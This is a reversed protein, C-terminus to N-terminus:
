KTELGSEGQRLHDAIQQIQQKYNKEIYKRTECMMSVLKKRDTEDLKVEQILPNLRFYPVDIMGCWAEAIDVPRGDTITAQDKVITYCKKLGRYAAYYSFPNLVHKPWRAEYSSAKKLAVKGTGLSVVVRISSPDTETQKLRLNQNHFETMLDLTPNNASLGGDMYVGCSKFYTPAAGTARAAEWVKQDNPSKPTFFDQDHQLAQPEQYTRFYHLKVPHRDALVGTVMARPTEGLDTMVTQEEFEEKLFADFNTSRDDISGTFFTNSHTFFLDRIETPRKGKCLALALIGGTSTGAIWDFCEQIPKEVQKEIAILMLCLNIGKIGGGDLSLLRLGRKRGTDSCTKISPGDPKNKGPDNKYWLNSCEDTETTVTSENLREDHCYDFENLIEKANVNSTSALPNKGKKNSMNVDADFALLIKLMAIDGDMAAYHLPTNGDEDGINADADLCLLEIACEARSKRQMIHLPTLGNVCTGNISVGEQFLKSIMERNVAWHMLTGNYKNDRLCLQDRWKKYIKEVSKNDGQKLAVFIPHINDNDTIYPNADANLLLAVCESKSKRCATCLATLGKKNKCDIIKDEGTFQDNKAVLPICEPDYLVAYHYVSNGESDVLDIRAGLELLKSVCDSNHGKLAIMLPSLKKRETQENININDNRLLSDLDNHLGVDVAIHVVKWDTHARFANSMKQLIDKEFVSDSVNALPLIITDLKEEYQFFCDYAESRHTTHFLRFCNELKTNILLCEVNYNQDTLGLIIYHKEEDKDSLCTNLKRTQYQGTFKKPVVNCVFEELHKHFLYQDQDPDRGQYRDVGHYDLIKVTFDTHHYTDMNADM